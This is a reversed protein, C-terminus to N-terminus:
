SHGAYSQDQRADMFMASVIRWTGDPQRSLVHLSRNDRLSISGGGILGQGTVQLHCSAVVHDDDLRRLALKPPAVPKGDNFNADAFLGRLYDIIEASGRKISGFANVWDADDSYVGELMDADRRAFAGLARELTRMIATQDSAAMVELGAIAPLTQAQNM